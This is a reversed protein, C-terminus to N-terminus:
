LPGVKKKPVHIDITIKKCQNLLKRKLNVREGTVWRALRGNGILELEPAEVEDFNTALAHKYASSTM